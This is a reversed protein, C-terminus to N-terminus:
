RRVEGSIALADTVLDYGIEPITRDGILMSLSELMNAMTERKEEVDCQQWAEYAAMARQGGDPPDQEDAAKFLGYALKRAEEPSIAVHAGETFQHGMGLLVGGTGEQGDVSSTSEIKFWAEGYDDVQISQVAGPPRKVRNDGRWAAVVQELIGNTVVDGYGADLLQAHIEQPNIERGEESAWDDLESLVHSLAHQSLPGDSM